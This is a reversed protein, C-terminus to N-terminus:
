GLPPIGVSAMPIRARRSKFQGASIGAAATSKTTYKPSPIACAIRKKLNDLFVNIGCAMTIPKQKERTMVIHRRIAQVVFMVFLFRAIAAFTKTLAPTSNITYRRM